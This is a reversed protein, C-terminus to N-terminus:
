KVLGRPELLLAGEQLRVRGLLERAVAGVDNFLQAIEAPVPDSEILRIHEGSEAIHHALKRRSVLGDSEWGHPEDMGHGFGMGRGISSNMADLGLGLNSPRMM